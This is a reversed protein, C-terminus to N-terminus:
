DPSCGFRAPGIAHVGSEPLLSTHGELLLDPVLDSLAPALGVGHGGLAAVWFFGDLATDPGVAIQRDEVFTRICAWTRRIEVNRLGPFYRAVKEALVEIQKNDVPPDCPEMPGEDCPCLLVGGSEPRFYVGHTVDWVFPWTTDIGSLPGSQALHRRLASFPLNRAGAQRAVLAAWPGSANVLTDCEFTDGQQTRVGTVRGNRTLIEVVRARFRIESGCSRAGALFGNLLGHIDVVGDSPTFAATEISEPAVVNIWARIEEPGLFQVPSGETNDSEVWSHLEKVEKGTALLLSGVRRFGLVGAFPSPPSDFFKLSCRALRRLEPQPVLERIMAANRGSAYYGPIDEQELVLIDKVGRRALGFATAAGALGAGIIVIRGPEHIM